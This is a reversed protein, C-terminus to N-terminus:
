TAFERTGFDTAHVGSRSAPHLVDAAQLEAFLGDVDGVEIGCSATGAIFSEAGSCIPLERLNERTRWSEDSAAWLHLVSDDRTLVAFDETEHPVDFGFRERYFATAARVDRVPLAPVTRGIEAGVRDVM